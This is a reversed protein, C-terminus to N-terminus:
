ATANAQIAPVQTEARALAPLCAVLAAGIVHKM